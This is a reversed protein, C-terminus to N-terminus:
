GEESGFLAQAIESWEVRGSIRRIAPAVQTALWALTQSDSAVRRLNDVSAVPTTGSEWPCDVGRERWWGRVTASIAQAPDPAKQIKQAIINAHRDHYEVEWRWSNKYAASHDERGKDYLRGFQPSKRSGVYLTDGDGHGSILTVRRRRSEPLAERAQLAGICQLRAWVEIDESAWVTVALDLRSVNCEALPVGPFCAAAAGSSARIISGDRRGGWSLQGLTQGLYGQWSWPKPEQASYLARQVGVITSAWRAKAAETSPERLTCTLWDITPSQTLWAM